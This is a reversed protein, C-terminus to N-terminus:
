IEASKFIDFGLGDSLQVDLFIVDAGNPHAGFWEVAEAVSGMMAVVELDPAITTIARHLNLRSPVEDEIIVVRM